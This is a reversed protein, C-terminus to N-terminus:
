GTKSTSVCSLLGIPSEAHISLSALGSSLRGPIYPTLPTPNLYMGVSYGHNKYLVSRQAHNFAKKHGEQNLHIGERVLHRSHLNIHPM